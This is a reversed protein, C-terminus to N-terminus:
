SKRAEIGFKGARIAADRLKLAMWLLSLGDIRSDPLSTVYELLRGRLRAHGHLVQGERNSWVDTSTESSGFWSDSSM